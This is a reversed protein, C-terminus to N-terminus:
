VVMAAHMSYTWAGAGSPTLRAGWRRPLIMRAVEVQPMDFNEGINGTGSVVYLYTGVGPVVNNFQFYTLTVDATGVMARLSLTLTEGAPAADVRVAILAGRWNHNVQWPTAYSVTRVALPALDVEANDRQMTGPLLVPAGASSAVLLTVSRQASQAVPGRDLYLNSFGDRATILDGRSIPVPDANSSGFRLWAGGPSPADLISVHTGAVDLSLPEPSPADLARTIIRYM